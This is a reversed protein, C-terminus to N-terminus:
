KKSPAPRDSVDFLVTKLYTIGTSSALVALELDLSGDVSDFGPVALKASSHPYKPGFYLVCYVGFDTMAREMYEPLQTKLGHGLDDSHALKFEVCIKVECNNETRASLLFDLRGSGIQYEPIVQISHTFQLDYLHGLIQPLIDTERKPSRAVIKRGSYSVDWYGNKADTNIIKDRLNQLQELVTEYVEINTSYVKIPALAKARAAVLLAQPPYTIPTESIEERVGERDHIRVHLRDPAWNVTVIMRTVGASKPALAARAMSENRILELHGDHFRCELYFGAGRVRFLLGVADGDYGLGSTLTFSSGLLDSATYKGRSMPTIAVEFEPTDEFQM